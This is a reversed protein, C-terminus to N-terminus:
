GDLAGQSVNQVKLRPAYQYIPKYTYTKKCDMCMRVYVFGNAKRYNGNKRTHKSGCKPCTRMADEAIKNAASWEALVEKDYANDWCDVCLGNGLMAEKGCQKCAGYTEIPLPINQM